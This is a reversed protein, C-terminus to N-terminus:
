VPYIFEGDRIEEMVPGTEEVLPMVLLEGVPVV